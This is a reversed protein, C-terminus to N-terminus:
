LSSDVKEVSSLKGQGGTLHDVTATLVALKSPSIIDQTDSSLNKSPIQPPRLANVVRILVNGMAVVLAMVIFITTMGVALLSFATQFVESM